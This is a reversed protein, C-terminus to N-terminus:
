EIEGVVREETAAPSAVTTPTVAPLPHAHVAVLPAPQSVIVAPDAPVPLPLTVTVTAAFVDVVCRLPVAVIAPCVNVTECAPAAHV